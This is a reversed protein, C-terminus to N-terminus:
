VRTFLAASSQSCSGIPFCMASMSHCGSGARHGWGATQLSTPSNINNTNVCSPTGVHSTQWLTLTPLLASSRIALPVASVNSAAFAAASKSALSREESHPMNQEPIHDEPSRYLFNLPYIGM